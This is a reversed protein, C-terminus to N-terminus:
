VFSGSPAIDIPSVSQRACLLVGVVIAAFVFSVLVAAAAIDKSRKILEHEEPHLRDLMKEFATNVLEIILMLLYSLIFFLLEGAQLPYLYWGLLLYVPLGYNIEMRFSKDARYAHSLGHVAYRVSRVITRVDNTIM